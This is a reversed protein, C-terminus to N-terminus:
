EKMKDAEAQKDAAAKKMYEDLEDDLEKQGGAAKKAKKALKRRKNKSIM